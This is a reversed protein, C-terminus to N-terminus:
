QAINNSQSLTRYIYIFQTKKPTSPPPPYVGHNRYYNRRSFVPARLISPVGDPSLFTLFFIVYM